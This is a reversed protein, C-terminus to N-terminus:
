SREEAPAQRVHGVEALRDLYAQWNAAQNEGLARLYRWDYIGTDHGDSFVLKIAYNGVPEIGVINVDEKGTQLVEQGPGHGRVEASPSFVRLYECPLRYREGGEYALELVRSQQHLRIETPRENSM